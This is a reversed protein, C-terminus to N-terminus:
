EVERHSLRKPDCVVGGKAGGYPIGVVACKWTMWMALGRVEDLTTAPHYRIGGKAPGRATNHQIRFGEFVRLSGDDMKVPFHVTLERQCSSLVERIGPDLQLRDAAISFQKRAVDFPNEDHSSVAPTSAQETTM